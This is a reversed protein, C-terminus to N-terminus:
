VAQPNNIQWGQATSLIHKIYEPSVFDFFMGEHGVRRFLRKWTGNDQREFWYRNYQPTEIYSFKTHEFELEGAAATEFLVYDYRKGRNDQVTVFGTLDLDRVYSSIFSDMTLFGVWTERVAELAEEKSNFPCSAYNRGDRYIILTHHSM